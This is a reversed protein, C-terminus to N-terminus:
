YDETNSEMVLDESKVEGKASSTHKGQDRVDKESRLAEM